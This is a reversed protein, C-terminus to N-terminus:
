VDCDKGHFYNAVIILPMASGLLFFIRESYLSVNGKKFGIEPFKDMSIKFPLPVEIRKTFPLIPRLIFPHLAVICQEYLDGKPIRMRTLFCINAVM